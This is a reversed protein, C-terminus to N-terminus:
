HNSLGSVFGSVFQYLVYALLGCVIRSVQLGNHFWMVALIEEGVNSVSGVCQWDNLIHEQCYVFAHTEDNFAIIQYWNISM